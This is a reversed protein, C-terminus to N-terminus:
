ALLWTLRMWLILVVINSCAFVLFRHFVHNYTLYIGAHLVRLGFYVWGLVVSLPEVNGTIYLIITLVYFLLPMELLNMFVRNPRRVDAPVAASEGNCFDEATVRGAFLARFRQIPILLLVLSTLGILALLPSFIATQPM